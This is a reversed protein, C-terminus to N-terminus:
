GKNPELVGMLKWIEPTVGYVRTVMEPDQIQLLWDAARRAGSAVRGDSDLGESILDTLGKLIQGTNFVTPKPNRKAVDM